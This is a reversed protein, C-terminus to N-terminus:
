SNLQFTKIAIKIFVLKTLNFLYVKLIYIYRSNISKTASESYRFNFFKLTIFM